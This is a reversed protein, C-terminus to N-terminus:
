VARRSAQVSLYPGGHLVEERDRIWARLEGATIELRGDLKRAPLRERGKGEATARYVWHKSRGVAEAVEDVSLRTEAPVSWLRSRWPEPEVELLKMSGPEPEKGHREGRSELGELLRALASVAITTGEPAETAWWHLEALTRM